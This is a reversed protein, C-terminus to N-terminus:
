TIYLYVQLLGDVTSMNVRDRLRKKGLNKNTDSNTIVQEVKM